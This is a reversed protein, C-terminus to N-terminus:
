GHGFAGGVCLLHANSHQQHISCQSDNHNQVAKQNDVATDPNRTLNWCAVNALPHDPWCLIETIFSEPHRWTVVARRVQQSNDQAESSSRRKARGQVYSSPTASFSVVGAALVTTNALLNEVVEASAVCSIPSTGSTFIPLLEVRQGIVKTLSLGTVSLSTSQGPALNV